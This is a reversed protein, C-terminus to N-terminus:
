RLGDLIMMFNRQFKQKIEDRCLYEGNVTKENSGHCGHIISNSLFQIIEKEPRGAFSCTEYRHAFNAFSDIGNARSRFSDSNRFSWVGTLATVSLNKQVKLAMGQAM